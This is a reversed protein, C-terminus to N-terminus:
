WEMMTALRASVAALAMPALPQEGSHARIVVVHALELPGHIELLVLHRAIVGMVAGVRAHAGGDEGRVRAVAVLHAEFRAQRLGDEVDDALM